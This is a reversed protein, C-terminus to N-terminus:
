VFITQGPGTIDYESFFAILIFRCMAGKADRHGLLTHSELATLNSNIEGSRLRQGAVIPQTRFTGRALAVRPGRTM